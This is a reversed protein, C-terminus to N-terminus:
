KNFATKAFARLMTAVNLVYLPVDTARPKKVQYQTALM